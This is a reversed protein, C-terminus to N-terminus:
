YAEYYPIVKVSGGIDIRLYGTPNSPLPQAAGAVGHTSQVLSSNFSMTGNQRISMVDTGNTDTVRLMPLTPYAVGVARLKLGQGTAGNHEIVIGNAPGGSVGDAGVHIASDSVSGPSFYIGRIFNAPASGERSVHIGISSSSTGGAAVTLPIPHYESTGISRNPPVTGSAPYGSFNFSNLENTAVGSNYLDARGFLGFAQNGPNNTRGYGTVGTPFALTNAARTNQVGGIIPNAMGDASLYMVQGPIVAAEPAFAPIWSIDAMCSGSFLMLALFYRM